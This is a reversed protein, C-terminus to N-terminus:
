KGTIGWEQETEGRMEDARRLADELASHYSNLFDENVGYEDRYQRLRWEGSSEFIEQHFIEGYIRSFECHRKSPLVREWKGEKLLREEVDTPCPCTEAM